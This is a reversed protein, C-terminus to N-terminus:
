GLGSVSQREPRASKSICLVKQEAAAVPGDQMNHAVTFAEDQAVFRAFNRLPMISSPKTLWERLEPHAIEPIRAIGETMLNITEIESADTNLVNATENSAL